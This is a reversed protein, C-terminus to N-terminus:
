EPLARVSFVANFMLIPPVLDLHMVLLPCLTFTCVTVTYQAIALSYHM